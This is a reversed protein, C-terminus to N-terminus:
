RWRRGRLAICGFSCPVCAACCCGHSSRDRCRERTAAGPGSGSGSRIGARRYCPEPWYTVTGTSINAPRTCWWTPCRARVAQHAGPTAVTNDVAVRAGAAHALECASALDTIEWMPNAPTELWLLRTRGPRIAATVADLDTTDVFEVDLGPALAGTVPDAEGMAQAAVTEPSM